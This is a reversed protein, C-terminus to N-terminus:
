ALRRDPSKMALAAEKTLQKVFLSHGSRSWGRKRQVVLDHLIFVRAWSALTMNADANANYAFPLEYVREYLDHWLQQDSGDWARNASSHQILGLAKRHMLGQPALVMVGSNIVARGCRDGELPTIRTQPCTFGKDYHIYAAPVPAFALHDINRLAICDSDLMIVSSYQTLSLVGVKAFTGRMWLKAWPPLPVQAVPTVRVGKVAFSQETEPDREGSVLLHTPLQTGVRRLSLVCRLALQASDRYSTLPDRQFPPRVHSRNFGLVLAIAASVATTRGGAWASHSQSLFGCAVSPVCRTGHAM